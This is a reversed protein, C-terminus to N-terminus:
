NMIQYKTLKARCNVLEMALEMLVYYWHYLILILILDLTRLIDLFVITENM